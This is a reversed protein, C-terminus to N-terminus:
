ILVSQIDFNVCKMGKESMFLNFGFLNRLALGRWYWSGAAEDHVRSGAQTLFSLWAQRSGGQQNGEPGQDGRWDWDTRHGHKLPRGASQLRRINGSARFCM